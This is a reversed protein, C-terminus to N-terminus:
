NSARTRLVTSVKIWCGVEIVDGDYLDIQFAEERSPFRLQAEEMGKADNAKLFMDYAALYMARDQVMDSGFSCEDFSAMYLNGIFSYAATSQDEDLEIAKLAHERAKPKNYNAYHATAVDMHLDAKKKNDTELNLAKSYNAIAGNWDKEAAAYQALIKFIGPTPENRALIKLAEMHNDTRGCSSNLGFAMVKKAVNLSDRKTMGLAIQDISSCPLPTGLMKLLSSDLRDTYDKFRSNDDVYRVSIQESLMLYTNMIESESLPEVLEHYRSAVYIYPLLNNNIPSDPSSFIEKFLPYAERLREPDNLYYKFYRFALKNQELETLKFHEAKSKYAIIMSDLLVQKRSEDNTSEAVKEFVDMAWSQVSASFDPANKLLWHLSPIAQEISDLKINDGAIAYQEKIKYELSGSQAIVSCTLLLLLATTTLRIPKM